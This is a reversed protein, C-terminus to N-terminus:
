DYLSGSNQKKIENMKEICAKKGEKNGLEDYTDRLNFLADYYFPNISVAREFAEAALSFESQNFFLVGMTNWLHSNLPYLDLGDQCYEAAEELQGLNFCILAISELVEQDNPSISNATLMAEKARHLDGAEQYTIGLNFWLLYNSQEVVLARKFCAIAETYHGSTALNIAQTNLTEAKEIM